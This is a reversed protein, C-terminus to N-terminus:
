IEITPEHGCVAELIEITMQQAQSPIRLYKSQYLLKSMVAEALRADMVRTTKLARACSEKFPLLAEVLYDHGESERVCTDRQQMSAGRYFIKKAVIEAPTELYVKQGRIERERTPESTLHTAVIFDIEGIDKFVIKLAHTGDFTCANPHIDLAFGRTQPNLYPSAQPDDIFIDVDFSERHGIQLMLATGGGFSWSDLITFKSNAQSIIQGTM